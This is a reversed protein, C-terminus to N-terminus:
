NTQNFKNFLDIISGTFDVVEGDIELKIVKFNDELAPVERMQLMVFEDSSVFDRTGETGNLMQYTIKM